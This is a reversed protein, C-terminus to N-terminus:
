RVRVFRPQTQLVGDVRLRVHFQHEEPEVHIDSAGRDTAQSFMNNVLEVVPAEEALERLHRVDDDDYDAARTRELVNLMRDLHQSRCLWWHLNDEGFCRELVERVVTNLPDRAACNITGSEESQWCIVGHALFWGTSLGSEEALSRFVGQDPPMDAESMVPMDLQSSLQPLLADESLAGLRILVAGLRGGFEAQFNLARELDRENILGARLLRQGIPLYGEVDERATLETNRSM